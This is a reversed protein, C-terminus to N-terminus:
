VSRLGELVMGIFTDGIEDISLRGGRDYWRPLWNCMGLVGLTAVAADLDRYFDGSEIGEQVIGRLVAEYERHLARIEAQRDASKGSRSPQVFWLSSEPHHEDLHHLHARMAAALKEAPSADSAAITQTQEIITLMRRHTVLFLLEAKSAAHYYLSGKLVGLEAAIEELRAAEFGKAAFVKAAADIVQERDHIKTM